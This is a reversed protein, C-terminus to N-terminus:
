RTRTVIRGDVITLKVHLASLGDITASLPDGDFVTMDASFGPQLRGRVREHRSAWAAGSTFGLVSEAGSLPAMPLWEDGELGPALLPTRVAALVRLPDCPHEPAGSGFVMGGLEPALMRWACVGRMRREGLLPMYGAIEAALGAPQMSPVIRLSPFRPWDKTAVVLASEVRPRVGVMDGESAAVRDLVNLALRNARDGEAEFVPQLSHRVVASVRQVLDDEGLLLRARFQPDDSYPELLAARHLDITGDLRFRVGCLEVRGFVERADIAPLADPNFGVNGDLYCLVRVGLEGRAALDRLAEITHRRTGMDHVSTLGAATLDAIVEKLQEAYVSREVAPLLQRVLEIAGDTLVGTAHADGDEVVEGGLGRAEVRVVGDIKALILAAQNVLAARGDKRLLFVPHNPTRASLPAHTPLGEGKWNREDWGWGLVWTGDKLGTTAKAVVDIMEASSHTQSLDVAHRAFALEELDLHGDQFGPLAVGGGLDIREAGTADSRRQLDALEGVALVRGQRVLLAHVSTGKGDNLQFTANHFLQTTGARARASLFAVALVALPFLSNRTRVLSSRRAPISEKM